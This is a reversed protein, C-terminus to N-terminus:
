QAEKETPGATFVAPPRSPGVSGPGRASISMLSAWHILEEKPSTTYIQADECVLNNLFPCAM